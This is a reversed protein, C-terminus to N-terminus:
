KLDYDKYDLSHLFEILEPNKYNTMINRIYVQQPTNSVKLIKFEPYTKKYFLYTSKPIITADVRNLALLHLNDLTNKGNIRKIKKADVM